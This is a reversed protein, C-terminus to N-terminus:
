TTSNKKLENLLRSGETFMILDLSRLRSMSQGGVRDILVKHILEYAPNSILEDCLNIFHLYNQIKQIKNAPYPRGTVYVAVNSDWIPYLEPKVFHLLKSLGVVSNNVLQQLPELEKLQLREGAKVRNLKTCADQMDCFGLTIITPMWGYVFHAGIILENATITKISQFYDIFVPYAILYSRLDRVNLNQALASMSILDPIPFPSISSRKPMYDKYFGFYRM